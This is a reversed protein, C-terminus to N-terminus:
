VIITVFEPIFGSHVMGQIMFVGIVPLLFMKAFAVAFMAPIAHRSFPRTMPLRAFSAGLLVLAM